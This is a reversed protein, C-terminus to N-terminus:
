AGFYVMYTPVWKPRYLIHHMPVQVRVTGICSCPRSKTIRPIAALSNDEAIFVTMTCTCESFCPSSSTQHPLFNIHIEAVKLLTASKMSMM